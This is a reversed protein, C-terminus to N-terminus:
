KPNAVVKPKEKIGTRIAWFLWSFVEEPGVQEPLARTERAPNPTRASHMGRQGCGHWGLIVMGLEAENKGDRSNM